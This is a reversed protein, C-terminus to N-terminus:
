YRIMWSKTGAKVIYVGHAPLNCVFTETEAGSFSESRNIKKSDISYVTVPTKPALGAIYLRGNRVITKAQSAVPPVIGTQSPRPELPNRGLQALALWATAGSHIRKNYKWENGKQTGDPNVGELWIGTSVGDRDAATISGDAQAAANAIALQVNYKEINGAIKEALIKQLSGEWWIGDLDDNFDYMGAVAFRSEIASLIKPVDIAPDQYFALIAWSNVDLPFVDKNITTGDPKTGTYFLGQNADYMRLVFARAHAADDNYFQASKSGPPIHTTKELEFALQSFASYIDICHETSIYNVKQQNDDFGEWGGKFGGNVEDKLTHIYNAISCAANLYETKGSQRWVQLFAILAWANNGTSYSDSYYDEWWQESDIDFFGALKAFPSKGSDSVWGPFSTPNGAGYGNRVGREAASFRRDNHLAFLLGDAVKCAQEQKGAYSLALVTMAVDYSYAVSNIFYGDRDLPVAEYSAPFVPEQRPAAFEYYIDDLYFTLSSKDPNYDHTTVWGFGGSIYSLDVGSLNIEFRQWTSTLTLYGTEKRGSDPNPKGSGNGGVFFNVKATRDNETRAHFVLKVAGQLDMGARYDGWNFTPSEGAELIGNGFYYGSWRETQLPATVKISTIGSFVTPSAEDMQPEAINDGMVGRQTFANRSDSYDSYVYLRNSYADVQAALWAAAHSHDEALVTFVISLCCAVALVMKASVSLVQNKRSRKFLKM